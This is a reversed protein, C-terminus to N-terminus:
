FDSNPSWAKVKSELKYYHKIMSEKGIFEIKIAQKLQNAINDTNNIRNETSTASKVSNSKLVLEDIKETTNQKEQIKEKISNITKVLPIKDKIIPNSPITIISEIKPKNVKEEQLERQKLWFKFNEQMKLHLSLTKDIM